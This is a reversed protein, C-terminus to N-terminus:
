VNTKGEYVALMVVRVTVIPPVKTTDEVLVYSWVVVIKIVSADCNDSTFTGVASAPAGDFIVRVETTARYEDFVTAVPFDTDMVDADNVPVVEDL